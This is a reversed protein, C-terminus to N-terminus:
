RSVLRNAKMHYHTRGTSYCLVCRMSIHGIWKWEKRSKRSYIAIPVNQFQSPSSHPHLMAGQWVSQCVCSKNCTEDLKHNALGRGAPRIHGVMNENKGRGYKYIIHIYILFIACYIIGNPISSATIKISPARQGAWMTVTTAKKSLTQVGM